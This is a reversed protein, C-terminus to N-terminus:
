KSLAELARMVLEKHGEALNRTDPLEAAVWNAHTGVDIYDFGLTVLTRVSDPLDKPLGAIKVSRLRFDYIKARAPAINAEVAYTTADESYREIFFRAKM